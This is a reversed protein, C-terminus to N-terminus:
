MKVAIQIFHVPTDLANLTDPIPALSIELKNNNRPFTM